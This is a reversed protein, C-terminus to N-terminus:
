KEKEHYVNALVYAKFREVKKGDIYRIGREKLKAVYWGKSGVHM